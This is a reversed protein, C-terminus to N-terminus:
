LKKYRIITKHTSGPITASVPYGDQRYTFDLRIDNSFSGTPISYDQYRIMNNTTKRLDNIYRMRLETPLSIRRLPNPKDDFTQQTVVIRNDRYFSDRQLILNGNNWVIESLSIMTDSPAQPYNPPHIHHTVTTFLRKNGPANQVSEIEIVKYPSYKDHKIMSDKTIMGNTYTLFFTDLRFVTQAPTYDGWHMVIRYPLTDSGQYLWQFEEWYSVPGASGPNYSYYKIRSIRKQADYNYETRSTTDLGQAFSTDLTVASSIYISDNLLPEPQPEIIDEASPQCSYLLGTLCVFALLKKM